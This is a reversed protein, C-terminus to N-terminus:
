IPQLKDDVYIELTCVIGEKLVVKLSHKEQEGVELQVSRSPNAVNTNCILNGDVSVKVNESLSCATISVAHKEKEGVQLSVNVM